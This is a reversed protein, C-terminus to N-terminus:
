VDSPYWGPLPPARLALRPWNRSRTETVGASTFRLITNSFATVNYPISRPAYDRM